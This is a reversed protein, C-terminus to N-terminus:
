VSHRKGLRLRIDSMDKWEGAIIVEIYRDLGRQGFQTPGISTKNWRRKVYDYCEQATHWQRDRLLLFLIDATVGPRPMAHQTITSYRPNTLLWHNPNYEPKKVRKRM